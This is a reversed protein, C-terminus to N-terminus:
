PAPLDSSPKKSLKKILRSISIGGTARRRLDSLRNAMEEYQKAKGTKYMSWYIIFRIIYMFIMIGILWSLVTSIGNLFKAFGDNSKTEDEMTKISKKEKIKEQDEKTVGSSAAAVIVAISIGLIVLVVVAIGSGILIAKKKSRFMSRSPSPSSAAEFSSIDEM